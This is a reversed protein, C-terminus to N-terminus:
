GGIRYKCIEIILRILMLFQDLKVYEEATHVREMGASLNVAKKGRSNFVNVDSGGGSARAVAKIGLNEIAKKAVMFPIEDESIEFGDFERAVKVEISGKYEQEVKKAQGHFKESIHELKALDLSRAEMEVRAQEAVVNKASGGKIIGVNCTTETDIRGFRLGSIYDSAMNIANIGKEPEIGAHAAKGKFDLYFSNQYPAKNIITGIDGDADFTFGYEARVAGIDLHKAGHIGGEESVTLVIYIDSTPIDYEAITRLAEIIAAVAVKDDGGLICKRNRNFIRGKELAPIVEGNLTVTDLHANLFVPEQKRSHPNRYLAIINGANSGFKSGCNDVTVEAKLDKLIRATHNVIEKENKTPSKIELLKFLTDVARKEDIKEM